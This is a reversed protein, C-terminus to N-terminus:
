QSSAVIIGLVLAIIGVVLLGLLLLLNKMKGDAPTATTPTSAAPKEQTTNATDMIPPLSEPVVPALSEAIPAVPMQPIEPSTVAAPTETPSPLPQELTVTSGVVPSVNSDASQPMISAAPNQVQSEIQIPGPTSPTESISSALPAMIPEVNVQAEPAITAALPTPTLETTPNAQESVLPKSAVDDDAV